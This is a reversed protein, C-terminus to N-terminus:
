KIVLRDRMWGSIFCSFLNSTCPTINCCQLRQIPRPIPLQLRHIYNGDNRSHDMYTRTLASSCTCYSFFCSPATSLSIYFSTFGLAINLKLSLGLAIKEYYLWPLAKVTPKYMSIVFISRPSLLHCGFHFIDLESWWLVTAVTCCVFSQRSFVKASKASKWHVALTKDV